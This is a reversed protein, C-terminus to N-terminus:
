RVPTGPDIMKDPVAISCGSKGVAALVMGESQIGMLKAPKLNAIVIVQKGILEDPSFHEAIGAVITRREGMDVELRLLKKARPISEAGVVTAV